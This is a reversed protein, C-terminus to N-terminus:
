IIVANWLIKQKYEVFITNKYRVYKELVTTKKM